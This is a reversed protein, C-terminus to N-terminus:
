GQQMRQLGHCIVKPGLRALCYLAMLITLSMRWTLRGDKGITGKIHQTMGCWLTCHQEQM